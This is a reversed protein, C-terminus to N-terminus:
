PLKVCDVMRSLRHIPQRTRAHVHDFDDQHSRERSQWHVHHSESFCREVSVYKKDVQQRHKNVRVNPDWKPEQLVKDRRRAEVVPMM